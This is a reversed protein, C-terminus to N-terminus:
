ELVKDFMEKYERGNEAAYDYVSKEYKDKINFDGKFNKFIKL